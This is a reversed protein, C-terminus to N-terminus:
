TKLLPASRISHGDFRSGYNEAAYLALWPRNLLNVEDNTGVHVHEAHLLRPLRYVLALAVSDYLCPKWGSAEKRDCSLM